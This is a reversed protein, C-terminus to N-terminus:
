SPYSVSDREFRNYEPQGAPGGGPLQHHDERVRGLDNVDEEMVEQPRGNAKYKETFNDLINLENCLKIIKGTLKLSLGIYFIYKSWITM